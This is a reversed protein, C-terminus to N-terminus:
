ESGDDKMSELSNIKRNETVKFNVQKRSEDLTLTKGEKITLIHDTHLLTSALTFMNIARGM